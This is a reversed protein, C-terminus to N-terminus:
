GNLENSKLRSSILRVKLASRKMLAKIPTIIGRQFRFVIRRWYRLVNGFPIRQYYIDEFHLLIDWRPMEQPLKGWRMGAWHVLYPRQGLSTLDEVGIRGMDAFDGPWVM